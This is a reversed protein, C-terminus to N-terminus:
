RVGDHETGMTSPGARQGHLLYGRVVVKGCHNHDVDSSFSYPYSQKHTGGKRKPALRHATVLSRAM